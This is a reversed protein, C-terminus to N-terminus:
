RRPELKLTEFNLALAVAFVTCSWKPHAPDTGVKAAFAAAFTPCGAKQQDSPLLSDAVAEAARSDAAAASVVAEMSDVEVAAFGGGGSFHPASSVHPAAPASYARPTYSPASGADSYSHPAYARPAEGSYAARPVAYHSGEGSIEPPRDADYAVRGPTPQRVYYAGRQGGILSGARNSAPTGHVFSSSATSRGENRSLASGTSSGGPMGARSSGDMTIERAMTERTM